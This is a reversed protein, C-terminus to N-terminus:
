LRHIFGGVANAVSTFPRLIAHASPLRPMFGLLGSKHKPSPNTHQALVPAPKPAPMPTTQPLMLPRPPPLIAVPPTKPRFTCNLDNPCADPDHAALKPARHPLPSDKSTDFGTTYSASTLSGTSTPDVANAAGANELHGAWASDTEAVNPQAAPATHVLEWLAPAPLIPVFALGAATLALGCTLVFTRQPVGAGAFMTAKSSEGM